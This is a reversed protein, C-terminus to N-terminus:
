GRKQLSKEREVLKLWDDFESVNPPAALSEAAIRDCYQAFAPDFEDRRQHWLARTGPM